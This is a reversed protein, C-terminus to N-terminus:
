DRPVSILCHQILYEDFQQPDGYCSSFIELLFVIIEQVAIDVFNSEIPRPRGQLIFEEVRSSLSDIYNCM